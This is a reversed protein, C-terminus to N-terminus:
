KRLMGKIQGDDALRRYNAQGNVLQPCLLQNYFSRYRIDERESSRHSPLFSELFSRKWFICLDREGFTQLLNLAVDTELHLFEDINIAQAMM